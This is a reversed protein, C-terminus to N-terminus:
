AGDASASAAPVYASADRAATGPIACFSPGRWQPPSAAQVGSFTASRSREQEPECLASEWRLCPLFLREPWQLAEGRASQLPLLPVLSARRRSSGKDMLRPHAPALAARATALHDFLPAGVNSRHT